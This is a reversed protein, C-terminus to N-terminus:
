ILDRRMNEDHLLHPFLEAEDGVDKLPIEGRSSAKRERERHQATHEPWSSPRPHPCNGEDICHPCPKSDALLRRPQFSVALHSENPVTCGETPAQSTNTLQRSQETIYIGESGLTIGQLGTDRSPEWPRQYRAFGHRQGQSVMHDAKRRGEQSTRSDSPESPFSLKTAGSHVKKPPQLSTNKLFPLSSFLRKREGELLLDHFKSNTRGKSSHSETSM